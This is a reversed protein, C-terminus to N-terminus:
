CSHSDVWLSGRRHDPGEILITQDTMSPSGTGDIVTAHTLAITGQPIAVFQGSEQAVIPAFSALLTLILLPTSRSLISKM